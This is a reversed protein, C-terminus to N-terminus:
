NFPQKIDIISQGLVTKATNDVIIALTHNTKM